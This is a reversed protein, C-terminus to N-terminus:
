RAHRVPEAGGGTEIYLTEVCNSAAWALGAEEAAQFSPYPDSSVLAVSEESEGDGCAMLASAVLTFTGDAIENIKICDTDPGAPEGPALRIIEM